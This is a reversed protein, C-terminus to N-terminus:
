GGLLEVVRDHCLSRVSIHDWSLNNDRAFREAEARRTRLYLREQPTGYGVLFLTTGLYAGHYAECDYAEGIFPYMGRDNSPPAAAEFVPAPARRAAGVKKGGCAGCPQHGGIPM